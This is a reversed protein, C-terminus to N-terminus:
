APFLQSMMKFPLLSPSHPGVKGQILNAIVSLFSTKFGIPFRVRGTISSPFIRIVPPQCFSVVFGVGKPDYVWYDPRCWTQSKFWKVGKQRRDDDM